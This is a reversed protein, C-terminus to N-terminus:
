LETKMSEILSEIKDILKEGEGAAFPSTLTEYGGENYAELDPIYSILGNSYCSILIKGEGFKDKLKIGLSTFLEGPIYVIYRDNIRLVKVELDIKEVNEYEKVMKLNFVAGEYASQYLRLDGGKIGTAEAEAEEKKEKADAVTKKAEELNMLSKIMMKISISKTRIIELEEVTRRQNILKLVEGGLIDGIRKVESFSAESRIFRTSVDGCEGNYFAACAVEDQSELIRAAEGVYDATVQINLHNMVTPHCAYNYIIIKKIDERKFILVQLEDDIPISPLRRNLGVGQLRSNSYSLTFRCLNKIAEGVGWTIQRIIYDVLTSDLSFFTDKYGENESRNHNITGTPGSHTHICSVVVNEKNIKYKRLISNNVLDIFYSDVGILDLQVLVFTEDKEIVIVRVYLNDHIGEAYRKYDYGCLPTGLPPNIIQKSYGIKAKEMKGGRYKPPLIVKRKCKIWTIWDM